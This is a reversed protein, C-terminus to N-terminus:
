GFRATRVAITASSVLPSTSTSSAPQHESVDHRLRVPLLERPFEDGARPDATPPGRPSSGRSTEEARQLLRRLKSARSRDTTRGCETGSPQQHMRHPGHAHALIRAGARNARRPLVMLHPTEEDRVAGKERGADSNRRLDADVRKRQMERGVNDSLALRPYLLCVDGLPALASPQVASHFVYARGVRTELVQRAVRERGVVHIDGVVLAPEKSASGRRPDARRRPRAGAARRVDSM